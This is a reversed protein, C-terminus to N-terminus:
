TVESGQNEGFMFGFQGTIPANEFEERTTHAPRPRPGPLMYGARLHRCDGGGERTPQCIVYCQKIFQQSCHYELM